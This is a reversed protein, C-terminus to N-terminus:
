REEVEVYTLTREIDLVISRYRSTGKHRALDNFTTLDVKRDLLAELYYVLEIFNLGLPTTPQILIDIDSDQRQEGKAFSGFLAIRALGYKKQLYPFAQRLKQLIQEKESSMKMRVGGHETLKYPNNQGM